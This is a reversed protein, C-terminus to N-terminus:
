VKKAEKNQYKWLRTKGQSIWEIATELRHIRTEETKADKFWDLYEKKYSYSFADFFEKAKKNKKLAITLYEPIILTKVTNTKKKAIKINRENLEVAEKIFQLIDRDPPIDSVKTMRGWAGTKRNKIKLYAQVSPMLPEKWFGLACHAKFASMSCLVGKYEFHPFGWKITEQVGPCGTHILERIHILIPKAFGASKEIYVDIQKNFKSM